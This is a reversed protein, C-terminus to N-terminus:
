RKEIKISKPELAEVGADSKKYDITFSGDDQNIEDWHLIARNTYKGSEGTVSTDFSIDYALIHGKTPGNEGYIEKMKSRQAETMDKYNDFISNLETAGGALKSYTIGNYPLNGLFVYIVSKSDTYVGPNTIEGNKVSNYFTQYDTKSDIPFTDLKWRLYAVSTGSMLELNESYPIFLPTTIMFSSSDITLGKPLIDELIVNQKETIVSSNSFLKAYESYNVNVHWNLSDLGDYQKGDKAFELKEDPFPTTGGDDGGGPPGSGPDPEITITIEGEDDIAIQSGEREAKGQVNFFGNNLSLKAIALENLTVKITGSFIQYIGLIENSSSVLDFTSDLSLIHHPAPLSIVFSDGPNLGTMNEESISWSYHTKIEDGVYISPQPNVAVGDLVIPEEKGDRIVYMSVKSINVRDTIDKGAFLQINADHTPLTNNQTNDLQTEGINSGTEDVKEIVVEEKPTETTNEEAFISFPMLVLMMIIALMLPTRKKRNM